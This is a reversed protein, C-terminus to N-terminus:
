STDVWLSAQESLSRVLRTSDKTYLTVKDEHDLLVRYEPLNDAVMIERVMRRFEKRSARSGAKQRLLDLGIKMMAQRGCHKRALEYLRRELPKRLKFYDRHLTLVEFAHVANHLWASLTVEVADMRSPCEKSAVVRWKDILGFGEDIQFGGTSINTTLTTGRLRALSEKLNAYDRGSVGRNTALLYDYATFRIARNAADPLSRDVGATLQSIAYILVDKDHQTARGLVSPTVTIWRKSDQSEWKWISLDPKTSLSFLPVEMSTMDGKLAYGFLDALFFEQGRRHQGSLERNEIERRKSIVM